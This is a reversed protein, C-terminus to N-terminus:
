QPQKGLVGTGLHFQTNMPIQHLYRYAAETFFNVKSAPPFSSILVMKRLSGYFHSIPDQPFPNVLSQEHFCSCPSSSHASNATSMRIESTTAAFAM